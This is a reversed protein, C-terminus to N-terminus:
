RVFFDKYTCIFWVAPLAYLLGDFRDLLGGHGPLISGMDKVGLDRKVISQCLDGLPAAVAVALGVFFGDKLSDIPGLGIAAALFMVVLLAIVMGGGLGEVTKNPSAASLPQRGANKGVFLGGVDYGVTGLITILLIGIGQGRGPGHLSLMLAAFSGGMGVWLVGFLTVGISMVPSETGAGVLYWLMSAAVALFLIPPLAGYGYNYAGIVLGVSATIGGLPLPHYGAQRLVGYLEATALGIIAVVLLMAPVPGAAMLILALVILGAGVVVAQGLDRDMGGPGVPVGGGGGGRPLRPARHTAGGIARGVRQGTAVRRTPPDDYEDPEELFGPAEDDWSAEPAVEAPDEDVDAFVSRGPVVPGDLDAFSFFDDHTPRERDDLAGLPDDDGWSADYGAGEARGQDDQWRPSSTAFSAWDEPEDRSARPQDPLIQPVQGTPPQTWHPLEVPESIPDVPV